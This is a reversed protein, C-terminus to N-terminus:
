EGLDPQSKKKEKVKIAATLEADIMTRKWQGRHHEDRFKNLALSNKLAKSMKYNPGPKIYSM